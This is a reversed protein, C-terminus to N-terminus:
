GLAIATTWRLHSFFRYKSLSQAELTDACYKSASILRSEVGEGTEVRAIM